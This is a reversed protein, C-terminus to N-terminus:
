ILLLFNHNIYIKSENKVPFKFKGNILDSLIFSKVDSDHNHIQQTDSLLLACTYSKFCVAWECNWNKM